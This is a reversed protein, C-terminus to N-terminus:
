RLAEQPAKKMQMLKEQYKDLVTDLSKSAAVVAPDSFSKGEQVKIMRVRLEEIEKILVHIECM